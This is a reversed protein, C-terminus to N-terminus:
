NLARLRSAIARVCEPYANGPQNESAIGVLERTFDVMESHFGSVCADLAEDNM